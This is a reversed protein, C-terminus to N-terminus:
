EKLAYGHIYSGCRLLLEGIHAVAIKQLRCREFM